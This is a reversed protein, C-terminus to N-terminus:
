RKYVHCCEIFLFEIMYNSSEFEFLYNLLIKCWHAAVAVAGLSGIKLIPWTISFLNDYIHAKIGNLHVDGGNLPDEPVDKM